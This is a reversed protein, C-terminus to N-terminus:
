RRRYVSADNETIKFLDTSRILRHSMQGSTVAQGDSRQM